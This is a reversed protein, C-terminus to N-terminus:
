EPSRSTQRADLSKQNFELNHLLLYFAIVYIVHRNVLEWNQLVNMGFVLTAMLVIALILAPRTKFGLFLLVGVAIEVGPILRAELTVLWMPLWSEAFVGQTWIIFAEYNPGLRVAGHMFMNLGMFLRFMTYALVQNSM